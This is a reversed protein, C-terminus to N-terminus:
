ALQRTCLQARLALLGVNETHTVHVVDGISAPTRDAAQLKRYFKTYRMVHCVM